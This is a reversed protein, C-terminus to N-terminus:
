KNQQENQILNQMEIKTILFEQKTKLDKEKYFYTSVVKCIREEQELHYILRVIDKYGGQVLLEHHIIEFENEIYRKAQPFNKIILKNHSCFNSIIELLRDLYATEEKPSITQFSEEISALQREYNKIKKPAGKLKAMEIKMKRNQGYLVITKNIALFYVLALGFFVGAILYKVKLKDEM